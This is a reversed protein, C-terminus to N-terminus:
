VTFFPKATKGEGCPIDSVLSKISPFIDAYPNEQKQFTQYFFFVLIRYSKETVGIGLLGKGLIFLQHLINIIKTVKKSSLSKGQWRLYLLYYMSVLM